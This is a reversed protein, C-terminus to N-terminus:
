EYHKCSRCPGIVLVNCVCVCVTSIAFLTYGSFLHQVFVRSSSYMGDPLAVSSLMTFHHRDRDKSRLHVGRVRASGDSVASSALSVNESVVLFCVYREFRWSPMHYCWHNLIFGPVRSGQPALANRPRVTMTMWSWDYATPWTLQLVILQACRFTHELQFKATCPSGPLSAPEKWPMSSRKGVNGREKAVPYFWQLLHWCLTSINHLQCAHAFSEWVHNYSCWFWEFIQSIGIGVILEDMRMRLQRWHKSATPQAAPLADLRYFFSLPSTSAHNDPSQLSTCIIQMHDLQHWQWKMM